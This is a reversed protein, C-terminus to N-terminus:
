NAIDRISAYYRKLGASIKAGVEQRKAETQFALPRGRYRSDQLMAVEAAIRRSTRAPLTALYALAAKDGCVLAGILITHGYATRRAAEFEASGIALGTARPAFRSNSRMELVPLPIYSDHLGVILLAIDISQTMDLRYVHWDSSRALVVAHRAKALFAPPPSGAPLSYFAACEDARKNLETQLRAAEEASASRIVAISNNTASFPVLAYGANIHQSHLAAWTRERTYRSYPRESM